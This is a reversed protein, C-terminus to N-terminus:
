TRRVPGQRGVNIKNAGSASGMTLHGNRQAHLFTGPSFALNESFSFRIIRANDKFTAKRAEQHRKERCKGRNQTLYEM